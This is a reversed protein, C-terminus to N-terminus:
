FFIAVITFADQFFGWQDNQRMQRDSRTGIDIETEMGIVTLSSPECSHMVTCVSIYLFFVHAVMLTAPQVTSVGAERM